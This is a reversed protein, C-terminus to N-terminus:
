RGEAPPSSRASRRGRRGAPSLSAYAPEPPFPPQIVHGPFSHDPQLGVRLQGGAGLYEAGAGGPEPSLGVGVAAGDASSHRPGQGHHVSLHHLVGATGPQRQVALDGPAAPEVPFVVEIGVQGLRVLHGLEVEGNGPVPTHADGRRRPFLHDADVLQVHLLVRALQDVVGPQVLGPRVIVAAAHRQDLDNGLGVEAGSLLHDGIQLLQLGDQLIQPDRVALHLLAGQATVHVEGDPRRAGPLKPGPRLHLVQVGELGNGPGDGVLGAALRLQQLLAPTHDLLGPAPIVVLVGGEGHAGLLVGLVVAVEWFRVDRRQLQRLLVQLPQPRLLGLHRLLPLPPILGLQAPMM